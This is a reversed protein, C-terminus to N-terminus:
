IHVKQWLRMDPNQSSVCMRKGRGPFFTQSQPGGSFSFFHRGHAFSFLFRSGGGGQPNIYASEVEVNIALPNMRRDYINGRGTFIEVTRSYQKESQAVLQDHQLIQLYVLRSLLGTSLLVLFAAIFLIRGKLGQAASSASKTKTKRM